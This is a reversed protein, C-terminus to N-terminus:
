KKRKQKKTKPFPAWWSRGTRVCEEGVRREESRPSAPSNPVTQPDHIAHFLPGPLKDLVGMQGFAFAARAYNDTPRFAAPVYDVRVDAPQKRKWAALTPEFDACHHCTYAFVEAVEIRDDATSWRQGDPIVVYDHGEVPGTASQACAALPLLMLQVLLLPLLHRRIM